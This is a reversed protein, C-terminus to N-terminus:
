ASCSRRADAAASSRSYRWALMGGRMSAVKTFGMAELALAASASRGGSRCLVVVPEDREWGRAADNLLALPVHEAADLKRLDGVLESRERVDILRVEGLHSAIWDVDLEPAGNSVLASRQIPAWAEDRAGCRRNAPVAEQIKKPPALKLEKMIAVFEAESKHALRPNHAKEEAVTTVTRGRYDHAPYLLTDDPLTFLKQTVSRYLKRADGQQFDTRGAGRILLADGTFAMSHDRLVYSVCGDTHGPTARVDLTHAGFRIADGDDVLVDACPAGGHASVVTRAGTRRRLEAAGTVHDAHVHTELVHTLELGLDHLVELDREVTERVPDILVAERTAADALLYTYTSSEPEFLQRFIPATTM